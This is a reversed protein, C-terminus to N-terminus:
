TIHRILENIQKIHEHLYLMCTITSTNFNQTKTLSASLQKTNTYNYM